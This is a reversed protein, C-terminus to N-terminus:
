DYLAELDSHEFSVEIYTTNDLHRIDALLQRKRARLANLQVKLAAKEIWPRFEKREAVPLGDPTTGVKEVWTRPSCQSMGSGVLELMVKINALERAKDSISHKKNAADIAGNLEQSYEFLKQLQELYVDFREQAQTDEAIGDTLTTGYSIAFRSAGQRTRIAAALENKTTLADSILMKM